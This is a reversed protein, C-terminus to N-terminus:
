SNLAGSFTEPLFCLCAVQYGFFYQLNFAKCEASLVVWKKWQYLKWLSWFQAEALSLIPKVTRSTSTVGLKQYCLTPDSALVQLSCHKRILCVCVSHTIEGWLSVPSIVKTLLSIWKPQPWSLCQRFDFFCSNKRRSFFKIERLLINSIVESIACFLVSHYSM